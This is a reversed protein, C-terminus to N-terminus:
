EAAIAELAPAAVTPLRVEVLTGMAPASTIAFVGGNAETLAKSLPLGLGTGDSRRTASVQRFPTLAAEIDDESMGPGTDRISLVLEGGAAASATSVIVQGGAGTFRIANTLVNLVIQRVSREDALVRPLGPLFSTRLITRERAAIPGSLALCQQVITALDIPSPTLESRGSTAKALDLLDNVLSIVHDGSGQIDRIYGKYRESGVPGFREELMLEAFGSIATLPTRIEHSVRALFDAQNASAREAAGRAERLESEMTKFRSVDRFAVSFVTGDPGPVLGARMSLAVPEGGRTRGRVEREGVAPPTTARLSELCGLAARHDEPMLLAGFGDGVVENAALGFLTEASRSLSLIRAQGDLGVVGDAALELTAELEDIRAQRTALALGLARAEIAPAPDSARALSVLTAPLDGWSVTSVRAEVALAAGSTDSLTVPVPHEGGGADLLDPALLPALAGGAVLAPLDHHGSLALLSRNAFLPAGDRLVLIGIPVGDLLAAPDPVKPRPAPVPLSVIEASARAKPASEEAPVGSGLARAIEHLAGRESASLAARPVDSLPEPPRDPSFRDGSPERAPLGGAQTGFWTRLMGFVTEGASGTLSAAAQLANELGDTAEPERASRAEPVPTDPLATGPADPGAIERPFAGTPSTRAESPFALGFGRHGDFHGNADLVPSGSIEVPIVRDAVPDRWGVPLRSWPARGEFVRALAGGDDAVLRGQLDRWRRGIVAAGAAGVSESLEASVASFRGDGDTRWLFRRGRRPAPEPAPEQEPPPSAVPERSAVAPVARIRADMIATILVDGDPSSVIRCALTVPTDLASRGFRLRELRFGARPARGQGLDRLRAQADRSLATVHGHPSVLRVRWADAGSSAWLIRDAAANWVLVVSEPDALGAFGPEGALAAILREGEAATLAM